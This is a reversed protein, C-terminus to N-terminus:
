KGEKWLEKAKARGKKTIKYTPKGDGGIGKESQDVWGRRSMEELLRYTTGIYQGFYSYNPGVIYPRPRSKSTRLDWGRLELRGKAVDQVEKFSQSKISLEYLALLTEKMKPTM